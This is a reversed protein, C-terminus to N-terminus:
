FTVGCAQPLTARLTLRPPLGVRAPGVSVDELVFAGDPGTRASPVREDALGFRM